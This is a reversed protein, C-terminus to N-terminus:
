IGTRFCPSLRVRPKAEKKKKKELDQNLWKTVVHSNLRGRWGCTLHCPCQERRLTNSSETSLGTSLGPLHEACHSELTPVALWDEIDCLQGSGYSRESELTVGWCFHIKWLFSYLSESIAQWRVMLEAVESLHWLLGTLFAGLMCSGPAYGGKTGAWWSPMARLDPTPARQKMSPEELFFLDALIVVGLWIM